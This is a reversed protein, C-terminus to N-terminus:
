LAKENRRLRPQRDHALSNAIADGNPNGGPAPVILQITKGPQPWDQAHTPGAVLCSLLALAAAFPPRRSM